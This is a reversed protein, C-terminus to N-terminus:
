EDGGYTYRARAQFCVDVSLTWDHAPPQGTLSLAIDISDHRLYAILDRDTTGAMDLTDDDTVCAGECAYLDLPPLTGDGDVATIGIRAADIFSFDDVGDLAVLTARVFSLEADHDTIQHIPDLDDVTFSREITTAPMGHTDLGDIELQPYFVCVEPADVELDLLTCAPQLLLLSLLLSNKM